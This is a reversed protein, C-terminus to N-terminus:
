EHGEIHRDLKSEIRDLRNIIHKIDNYYIKILWGGVPIVFMGLIVGLLGLGPLLPEM